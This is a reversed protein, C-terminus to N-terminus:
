YNSIRESISDRQHSDLTPQSVWHLDSYCVRDETLNVTMEAFGSDTNASTLRLIHTFFQPFKGDYKRVDVVVAINWWQGNIRMPPRGTGWWVPYEMGVYYM